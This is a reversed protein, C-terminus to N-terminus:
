RPLIQMHSASISPDFPRVSGPVRRSTTIFDTRTTRVAICFCEGFPEMCIERIPKGQCDIFVTQCLWLPPAFWTSYKNVRHTVEEV